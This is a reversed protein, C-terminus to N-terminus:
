ITVSTKNNEKHGDETRTIAVKGAVTKNGKSYEKRGNRGWYMSLGQENSQFNKFMIM